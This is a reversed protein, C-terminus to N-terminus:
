TDIGAKEMFARIWRSITQSSVPKFPKRTAIFLSSSSLDKPRHPETKNEYAKLCRVPCLKHNEEFKLYTVERPPGSRRTKTLNPIVFLVGEPKYIRYQLSLAHIDSSRDANCLALLIVTKSTLTKLDLDESPLLSEIFGLVRNVDWFWIYRPKPPGSNFIGQLLRCVLPHQGAPTSGYGIHTASIASRYSNITSYQKGSHFQQTLYDLIEMVPASVSNVGRESCWSNWASWASSYSKETSKRWSSFILEAAQRLVGQSQYQQLLSDVRSSMATRVTDNSTAAGPSGGSSRPSLPPTASGGSVNRTVTSVVSTGELPSHYHSTESGEGRQNQESVKGSSLLAPVCLGSPPELQTSLCRSRLLQPRSELQLLSAASLQTQSRVPGLATTRPPGSNHCVFFTSADLRQSGTLTQVRLRGGYEIDWTCARSSYHSETQSVLGMDRTSRPQSGKIKHWRKCECLSDSGQQGHSDPHTQEKPNICVIASSSRSGEAGAPQHPRGDRQRDLSRRSESQGDSSGVEQPLCGNGDRYRSQPNKSAPWQGPSPQHDVMTPGEQQWLRTSASQTIPSKQDSSRQGFEPPSQLSPSSGTSSAPNGVDSWDSANRGESDATIPPPLTQSGQRDQLSEGQHSVTEDAQLGCNVGSIGANTRTGVQIKELQHCVGFESPARSSDQHSHQSSSSLSGGLPYRRHIGHAECGFEQTQGNSAEVTKHFDPPGFFPRLTSCRM